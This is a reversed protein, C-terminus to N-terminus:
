VVTRNRIAKLCVCPALLLHGLACMQVSLLHSYSSRSCKVVAQAYGFIMLSALTGASISLVAVILGLSHWRAM